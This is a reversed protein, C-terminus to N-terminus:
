RGESERSAVLQVTRSNLGTLLSTKRTLEFTNLLWGLRRYLPHRSKGRSLAVPRPASWGSVELALTAFPNLGGGRDAQMPM